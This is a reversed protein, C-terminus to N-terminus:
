EGANRNIHVDSSAILSSFISGSSVSTSEDGEQYSKKKKECIM